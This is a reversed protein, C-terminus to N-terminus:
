AVVVVRGDAPSLVLIDCLDLVESRKHLGCVIIKVINCDGTSLVIGLAVKSM